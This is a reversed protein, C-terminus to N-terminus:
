LMQRELFADLLLENYARKSSTNMHSGDPLVINDIGQIEQAQLSKVPLQSMFVDWYRDKPYVENYLQSLEGSVPPTYFIVRGGRAHILSVWHRIDALNSSWVRMDEVFKGELDKRLINVFVQKLVEGNAEDLLLGSNREADITFNPQRPLKQGTLRRKVVAAVSIAPDGLVTLEQWKNLFFRHLRWSPNWSSHYYDVYSQQMDNHVPLLGHSDIDVVVVGSFNQDLALDKLSALPYMGNLALMVPDFDPLRERVYPLDIGFLTRSAGIFVLPTKKKSYVNDRQYAWLSKSDVVTPTYGQKIWYANYAYLVSSLTSFFIFYFSLWRWFTKQKSSFTFLRM